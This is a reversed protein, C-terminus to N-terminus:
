YLRQPKRLGIMIKITMTIWYHNQNLFMYFMKGIEEICATETVLCTM